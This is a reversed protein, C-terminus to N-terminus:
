AIGVDVLGEFPDTPDSCPGPCSRSVDREARVLVGDEYEEVWPRDWTTGCDRCTERETTRHITTTTM